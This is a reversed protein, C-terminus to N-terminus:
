REEERQDEDRYWAEFEATSGLDAGPEDPQDSARGKGAGAGAGPTGTLGLGSGAPPGTERPAAPRRPSAREPGFWNVFEQTTALDAAGEAGGTAVPPRKGPPLAALVLGALAEAARPRALGLMAKGMRALEGPEALLPAATAALTPGDLLADDIVRAGGADAAARANATQHGAAAHPLPVMVAPMGVATLEAMTMAGSRTVALDAAAYALDMRDIFAVVRVLLGRSEPDAARWASRVAAEDRRGCAHLVQIGGPEPWHATAAVLAQNIRRAGQSGGFVLLTRRRPELGFAALAEARLAARDLRALEPRVPNGVLVAKGPPFAEIAAAVGVGVRSAFRAALRNALGPVANSEHLVVPLGAMRAAAAVPLTVYGGMGAVVDIRERRLLRLAAGTGAVAAPAALVTEVALRRSLPLIPLLHLRFGAEPVVRTEIGRTTGAFSVAAAPVREVLARALALGPVVHGGTGGAAVLVRPGDRGRGPQRPQEATM